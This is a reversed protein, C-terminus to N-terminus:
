SHLVNGVFFSALVTGTQRDFRAAQRTMQRVSPEAMLAADEEDEEDIEWWAEFTRRADFKDAFFYVVPPKCHRLLETFSELDMSVRYTEQRENSLVGTVPFSGNEEATKKIGDFRWELEKDLM